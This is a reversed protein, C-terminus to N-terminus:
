DDQHERTAVFEFAGADPAKGLARPGLDLDRPGEPIPVGVDIAPLGDRALRLNGRDPDVFWDRRADTVNAEVALRGGDRAVIPRNTLNNRVLGTSAPFRVSISWPMKGEVLVTNHEIRVGPCGNAEIGEDAWPNLNCVVNNRIVGGRHDFPGPGDPGGTLGLAFGRFCDIAINREVTTGSSGKWFLVSPGSAWGEERPGRIRRFLSDRVVWGRGGLVDVGNTYNSPAHDSYEFASCAVLGELPGRGDEGCSGKLLQQGADVVRVNHLVMRDAGTEGRVQIGHLGVAGVTLDALTVRPASVSIAVGVQREDMGRGRLTARSRDGGKGRLVLDPVGLDVMRDLPYVGDELLITTGPRARGLAERLGAMSRVTLM